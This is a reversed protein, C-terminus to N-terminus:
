PRQDFSVDIGHASGVDSIAQRSQPVVTAVRVFRSARTSSNKQLPPSSSSIRRPSTCTTEDRTQRPPQCSRQQEGKAHESKGSRGLKQGQGNSAGCVAHIRPEPHDAHARTQTASARSALFIGSLRGRIQQSSWDLVPFGVHQRVSEALKQLVLQAFRHAASPHIHPHLFLTLQCM